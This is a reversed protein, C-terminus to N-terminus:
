HNMISQTTTIKICATTKTNEREDRKFIVYRVMSSQEVTGENVWGGIGGGFSSLVTVMIMMNNIRVVSYAYIRATRSHAKGTRKHYDM